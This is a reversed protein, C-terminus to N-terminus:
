GYLNHRDRGYRGWERWLVICRCSVFFSPSPDLLVVVASQELLSTVQPRADKVTDITPLRSGKGQRFQITLLCVRVPPVLGRTVFSFPTLLFNPPNKKEGTNSAGKSRRTPDAPRFRPASCFVSGTLRGGLFYSPPARARTHDQSRKRM